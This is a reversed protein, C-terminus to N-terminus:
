SLTHIYKLQLKYKVIYTLPAVGSDKCMAGPVQLLVGPAPQESYWMEKKRMLIPQKDSIQKLMELCCPVYIFMFPLFERSVRKIM